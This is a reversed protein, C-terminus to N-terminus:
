GAIAPPARPAVGHANAERPAAAVARRAARLQRRAPVSFYAPSGLSPLDNQVSEPQNDTGGGGTTVPAGGDIVPTPHPPQAVMHGRGDNLWLRVGRDTSALVDLDGDRDFDVTVVRRLTEGRVSALASQVIGLRAASVDATLTCLATQGRTAAAVGAANATASSLLVVLAGRAARGTLGLRVRAHYRM